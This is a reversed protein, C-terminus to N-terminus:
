DIFANAYKVCCDYLIKLNASTAADRQKECYASLGGSTKGTQTDEATKKDDEEFLFFNGGLIRAHDKYGQDEEPHQVRLKGHKV